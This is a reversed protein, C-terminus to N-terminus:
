TTIAVGKEQLQKVKDNWKNKWFGPWQVLKFHIGTTAIDQAISERSQECIEEGFEEELTIPMNNSVDHIYETEPIQCYSSIQWLGDELLFDPNAIFRFTKGGIYVEWYPRSGEFLFAHALLRHEQGHPREQTAFLAATFESM